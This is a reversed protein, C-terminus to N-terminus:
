KYNIQEQKQFLYKQFNTVKSDSKSTQDLEKREHTYM